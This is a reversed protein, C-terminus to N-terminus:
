NTGGCIWRQLTTSRAMQVYLFWRIAPNYVQSSLKGDLSNSLNYDFMVILRKHCDLRLVDSDAYAAKCPFKLKLAVDIAGGPM